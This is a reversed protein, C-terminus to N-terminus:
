TKLIYHMFIGEVDNPGRIIPVVPNLKTRPINEFLLGLGNRAFSIIGVSNGGLNTFVIKKGRNLHQSEVVASWGDGYFMNGYKPPKDTGPVKRRRHMVTSLFM